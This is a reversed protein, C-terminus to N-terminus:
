RRCIGYNYYIYINGIVLYCEKCDIYNNFEIFKYHDPKKDWICFHLRGFLRITRGSLNKYRKFIEIM